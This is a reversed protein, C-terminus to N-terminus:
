SSEKAFFAAAKKLIDREVLLRQNDRRLRLLEERETSSLSSPAPPPTAKDKADALDIWQRVTSDKLGLDRCIQAVSRDGVRTLRVVEAKFDPTAKLNKRRPM